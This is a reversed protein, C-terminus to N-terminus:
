YRRGQPRDTFSRMIYERVIDPMPDRDGGHQDWGRGGRPLQGNNWHQNGQQGGAGHHGGAGPHRGPGHHRGARQHEKFDGGERFHNGRNQGPWQQGQWQQGHWQQGGWGQDRWHPSGGAGRHAGGFGRQDGGGYGGKHKRNFPESKEKDKTIELDKFVTKVGTIIDLSLNSLGKETLHIGDTQFCFRKAKGSLNSLSPLTILHVRDLPTVLSLYLGNAAVSLLSKSLKGDHESDCRPPREVIFIDMDFKKSAYEALHVLNKSQDCALNNLTVKNKDDIKLESIDNTGVAIIAFDVKADKLETELLTKLFLEPDRSEPNKEIHYTPVAIINCQLDYELRAIDCKLAISDSFLIADRKIETIKDDVTKDVVDKKRAGKSTEESSEKAETSTATTSSSVIVPTATLRSVLSQINKNMSNLADLSQSTNNAVEKFIGDDFGKGLKTMDKGISDSAAIVEDLKGLITRFKDSTEESKEIRGVEEKLGEIASSIENVKVQKITAEAIKESLKDVQDDNIIANGNKQLNLIETLKQDVSAIDKKNEELATSIRGVEQKLDDLGTNDKLTNVTTDFKGSLNTRLNVMQSELKQFGVILTQVHLKEDEEMVDMKPASVIETGTKEVPKEKPADEEVELGPALDVPEAEIGAQRIEKLIGPISFTMYATYSKGQLMIHSYGNKSKNYVSATISGFNETKSGSSMSWNDQRFKVGHELPKSAGLKKELVKLWAGRNEEKINFVINSTNYNVGNTKEFCKLIDKFEDTEVKSQLEPNDTIFKLVLRAAETIEQFKETNGSGPKDPHLFLKQKYHKKFETLTPVKDTSMELVLLYKEVTKLKEKIEM